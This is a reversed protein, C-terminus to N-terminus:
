QCIKKTDVWFLTKKFNRMTSLVSPSTKESTLLFSRKIHNQLANLRNRHLCSLFTISQLFYCNKNCTKLVECETNLNQQPNLSMDSKVFFLFLLFLINNTGSHPELSNGYYNWYSKKGLTLTM